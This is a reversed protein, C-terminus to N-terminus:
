WCTFSSGNVQSILHNRKKVNTTSLQTNKNSPRPMHTHDGGYYAEKSRIPSDDQIQPKHKPSTQESPTSHRCYLTNCTLLQSRKAFYPCDTWSYVVEKLFRYYNNYSFAEGVVM